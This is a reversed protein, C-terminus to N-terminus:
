EAFGDRVEATEVHEVMDGARATAFVAVAGEVFAGVLAPLRGDIRVEFAHKEGIAGRDPLEQFM